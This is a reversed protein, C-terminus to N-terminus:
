QGTGGCAKGWYGFDGGTQSNHSVASLVQNQWSVDGADYKGNGKGNASMQFLGYKTQGGASSTGLANPNYSSLCPIISYFWKDANKPDLQKLLTYLGDKTFDCKLDGFNVGTPDQSLDYKGDCTDVLTFTSTGLAGVIRAGITNTITVDNKTPRLTITFTIPSRLGALPCDVTNGNLVCPPSTAKVFETNPPLTDYVIIQEIPATGLSPNYSVNVAYEIPEGNAVQNRAIVNITLGPPLPEIPSTGPPSSGGGPSSASGTTSDEGSFGSGGAFFLMFIIIFIVIGGIIWAIPSSTVARIVVRKLIKVLIKRGRDKAKKKLRKGPDYRSRDQGRQEEQAQKEEDTEM